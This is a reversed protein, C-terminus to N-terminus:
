VRMIEKEKAESADAIKKNYEDVTKQIDDKIKFKQDESVKKEKELSGLKKMAEDRERRVAIKGQEAKERVLKAFQARREETLSPLTIKVSNGDQAPAVGLASGMIAKAIPDLYSKDWPSILITSPPLISISALQKVTFRQDMSIVQIDEVLSSSPRNTRIPQLETKFHLLAKEIKEKLQKVLEHM